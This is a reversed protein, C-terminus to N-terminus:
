ALVEDGDVTWSNQGNRDQNAPRFKARFRHGTRSLRRISM